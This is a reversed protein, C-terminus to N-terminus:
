AIWGEGHRHRDLGVASFEDEGTSAVVGLRRLAQSIASGAPPFPQGEPVQLPGLVITGGDWVAAQQEGVGGFYEAEVYAVPGATSWDALTKEFGGPLRWFGLPGADSGDTVSDFLADTMPMLSMGQGLSALRAAPLDRAAARLVERGAIVAQLDYGM